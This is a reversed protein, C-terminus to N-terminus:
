LWTRQDQAAIRYVSAPKSKWLFPHPSPNFSWKHKTSIDCPWPKSVAAPYDPPVLDVSFTKRCGSQWDATLPETSGNGMPCHSGAQCNFFASLNNLCMCCMISTAWSHAYSSRFVFLVETKLSHLMSFCITSSNCKKWISKNSVHKRLQFIPQSSKYYHLWRLPFEIPKEWKRWSCTRTSHKRTNQPVACM